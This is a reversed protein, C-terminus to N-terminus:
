LDLERELENIVNVEREVETTLMAHRAAEVQREQALLSTETELMAMNADRRQRCTRAALKNKGRRRIKRILARQANNLHETRLLRQFETLTMAAITAASVPLRHSHALQEDKSQRGRRRASAETTNVSRTGDRMDSRNADSFDM